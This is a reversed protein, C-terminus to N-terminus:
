NMQFCLTEVNQGELSLWFYFPEEAGVTHQQQPNLAADKFQEAANVKLHAVFPFPQRLFCWCQDM